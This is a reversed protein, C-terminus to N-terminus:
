NVGQQIYSQARNLDDESCIIRVIDGTKFRFHPGPSIYM